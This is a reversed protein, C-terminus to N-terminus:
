TTGNDPEMHFILGEATLPKGNYWGWILVRYGHREVLTKLTHWSYWAVHEKNVSEIGQKIYSQAAASFANPTTLIVQAGTARMLDLLHGANSVHEIIEGAVIIQLGDVRPLAAAKDFDMVTDVTPGPRIDVGHYGAAEKKLKEAM